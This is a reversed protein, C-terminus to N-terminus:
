VSDLGDARVCMGGTPLRFGPSSRTERTATPRKGALFAAHSALDPRHGALAPRSRLLALDNKARASASAVLALSRIVLALDFRALTFRSAHRAPLAGVLALDYGSFILRSKILAFDDRTRTFTEGALAFAFRMIESHLRASACRNEIMKSISRAFRRCVGELVRM